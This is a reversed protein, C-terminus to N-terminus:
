CRLPLSLQDLLRFMTEQWPNWSMLRYVIRRGGRVIQAPINMLAQRFTAFEMRLLAQKAGGRRAPSSTAASVNAASRKATSAPAGRSTKGRSKKGRRDAPPEDPLLLATWAKLSWALAAMVMYAWNSELSDLPARLASVGNKLQEIHNEQNCRDNAEFVVDAAPADWDNTIYFFCRTDDFLKTQGEFVELNKCVVIVRYTNKCKTPRYAFEGVDEGCLRINEFERDRVIQEKVRPPKARPQTKVTYKAPRALPTWASDPLAEALEYLNPMADIGFVFRVGEDDWRDLEATQTFDTDGRLTIKRFGAARCHEIARDLYVAAGEHSPRNGSRNVIYLPEGTAALSVVLPHYGWEGKYNIDMGHKCEGTTAVMTGDVDITAEALFTESQQRWVDVRTENFTEMLLFINWRNFRRCFDGATTPDPIRRAGLADLFVEDNRRLELHELRTGGSLLNYAINLVHDSEHYPLHFKLVQIHRDIREALGVHKVVRQILGIGGAAIGRTRDAIDYQINARGFVPGDDIAGGGGVDGGDRRCADYPTAHKDLRKEIRRKARALKRRVKANM